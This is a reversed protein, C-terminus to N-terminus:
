RNGEGYKREAAAWHRCVSPAPKTAPATMPAPATMAPASPTSSTPRARALQPPPATSRAMTRPRMPLLAGCPVVGPSGAMGSAM